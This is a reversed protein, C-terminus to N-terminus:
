VRIVHSRGWVVHGHPILDTWVNQHLWFATMRHHRLDANEAVNTKMVVYWFISRGRGREFLEEGKGDSPVEVWRM